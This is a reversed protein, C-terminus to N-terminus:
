AAADALDAPRAVALLWDAVRRAPSLRLGAERCWRALEQAAGPAAQEDRRCLLLLRGGPRVLRRAEGLAAVPQADATLVDDLIITDFEASEFPLRRMDGQRLSCTDLGALLLEARALERASADIDVGVARQARSSLLKLLRGRGCGVDLLDGVPETVTLELIARHLARDIDDAALAVSAGRLRRLREADEDFLPEDAPLLRALARRAAADGGEDSLRYYMRQGDRFRELLGADCLIKLQQSVRPQSLGVVATLESVSCEGHRCLAFLRLRQPDGLAKFRALLSETAARM